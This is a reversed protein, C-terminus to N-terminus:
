LVDQTPFFAVLIMGTWSQARCPDFGTIGAQASPLLGKRLACRPKLGACLFSTKGKPSEAARSPKGPIMKGEWFQMGSMPNPSLAFESAKPPSLMVVRLEEWSQGLVAATAVRDKCDTGM